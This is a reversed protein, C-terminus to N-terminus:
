INNKRKEKERIIKKVIRRIPLEFSLTFILCVIFIILFNGVSIIFFTPLNFKIKLIFGCFSFYGLIKYLCTILFGTRSIATNLKFRFIKKYFGKSQVSLLLLCIIFYLLLFIHREYMFYINVFTGYIKILDFDRDDLNSDDKDIERVEFLKFTLSLLIMLVFCLLIFVTKIKNSVKKLWKLCKNLFSLPYYFLELNQGDESNKRSFKNKKLSENDDDIYNVSNLPQRSKTTQKDKIESLNFCLLGIIFGLHYVGLSLYGIKNTYEQGRFHYYTYRKDDSDSFKQERNPDNVTFMLGIFLGINIFIFIIEIIKSKFLFLIYLIIMFILTSFFINIYIFTFDYCTKFNDTNHTFTFFSKFIISPDKDCKINKTIVKDHIYAYTTKASFWGNYDIINQYFVYYCFLFMLIKPIFLILFKGYIILLNIYNNKIINKKEYEKMQNKIFKMLKFTTYAAELFIWCVISHTSLRYIFIMKSSFFSRNLIDKSPLEFLSTFTNFFIIFYLDIVKLFNIVELGNDNFYRNRNTNLLVIDNFFDFFRVIRFYMPFIYTKDFKPNYEKANSEENNILVEEKNDIENNQKIEDNENENKKQKNQQILIAHKDYGKPLKILRFIGFGIKIIIYVLIFFILYYRFTKQNLQGDKKYFLEEGETANQFNLFTRVFDNLPRLCNDTVCAGLSFMTLNLFERLKNESHNILNTINMTAIAYLTDKFSNLCEIEDGLDNLSKGINDIIFPYKSLSIQIKKPKIRELDASCNPYINIFIRFALQLVDNPGIVKEGEEELKRKAELIYKNATEKNFIFSNEAYIFSISLYILLPIYLM